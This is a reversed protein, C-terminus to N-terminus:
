APEGSGEWPPVLGLACGMQVAVRDVVFDIMDAVSRPRPYFAPMCPVVSAGMAALRALNELHIASMPTERPALVLRRREKLAVDCIRHVLTRGAGSAVAGVTAMSCPLVAAADWSVSGSALVSGFDCDHLQVLDLRADRFDDLLPGPGQTRQWSIGEEYALVRRAGESVVLHVRHGKGSLAAALRRGYITGSAGTLCLVYKV